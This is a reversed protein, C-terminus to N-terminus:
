RASSRLGLVNGVAECRQILDEIWVDPPSLRQTLAYRMAYHAARWWTSMPAGGIRIGPYPFHQARYIGYARSHAAIYTTSARDAGLLHTVRAAPLWRGSSGSRLMDLMVKSEESGRHPHEPHRGLSPDYAFRRQEIARTAYNGGFPLAEEAAVLAAPEDGLERQGYLPAVRPLVQSFWEPLPGDFAVDIPGGFVAADPHADFAVLYSALWGPHAVADDDIWILYQGRAEAVGRNRAHSLGPNPESVTRIPLRDRFQAAVDPTADTSANDVVLVGWTVTAPIRLQTLSDLARGLVAARNRTCVVVTARVDTM